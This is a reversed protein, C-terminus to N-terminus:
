MKEKSEKDIEYESNEWSSMGLKIPASDGPCSVYIFDSEFGLVKGIKGNYFRGNPDNKIFMVQAGVKLELISDAPYLTEPFTNEVKCAFKHSQSPLSALMKKNYQQARYNHTTLLIYDSDVPPVFGPIYRSNLANVTSSDLIGERVKGLLDIFTTDSQRYIHKLEITLFESESLAKSSFFYPTAYYPKLADWEKDVSVPTLQQLDGIMLLQVGGFPKSRDRYKRLESDVADLLDCRVMSIEDIILLDLTRLINKKTKSM